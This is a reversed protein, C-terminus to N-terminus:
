VDGDDFREKSLPKAACMEDLRRFGKDEENACGMVQNIEWCLQRVFVLLPCRGQQDLVCNSHIAILDRLTDADMRKLHRGEDIRVAKRPM